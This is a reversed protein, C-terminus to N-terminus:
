GAPEQEEFYWKAEVRAQECAAPLQAKNKELCALIRGQGIPMQPCLKEITDGCAAGLKEFPGEEARVGPISWLFFVTLIFVASKKM